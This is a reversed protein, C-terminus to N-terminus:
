VMHAVLSTEEPKDGVAAAAEHTVVGDRMVVIRHALGILEVLEDSALLVAGGSETFGRILEYLEEKAGVDIGKTPNDLLLVDTGCALSRGMVLKQQNGGSLVRPTSRLGPLKIRLDRVLRDCLQREPGTRLVQRGGKQTLHALTLNWAIPLDPLIGEAQRDPSVYGVGARLMQTATPRSTAWGPLDVAGADLGRGDFIARLLNSKGSGIVGAVGLVEGRHLEIDIPGFGKGRLRRCSLAVEDGARGQRHERYVAEDRARGTMLAHLASETIESEPRAVVEGDKLVCIRDSVDVLEALRHSVFVVAAGRDRLRRVLALFFAVEDRPLGATAEDFMVIPHRIELLDALAIARIIELVQRTAFDLEDTPLTPDIWDHDFAALADRAYALMRKRSIVGGVEFRHEHGLALNQYVPLNPVLALEQFVRFVGARAADRYSRFRREEGGVEVRGADPVIVGSIVSLLTSKGAGNEGILGLIEHAHAEITVDHLARTPGFRKSVGVARLIPPGTM